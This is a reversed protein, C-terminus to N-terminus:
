ESEETKGFMKALIRCLTEAEERTITVSCAMKQPVSLARDRLALGEDTVSVELQREDSSDRRRVIFGKQELKKLVPTLTGSDLYLLRGIEKVSVSGQEWLVMMTIYQTYTLDIEDLVPKYRRLIERSAAYLPFCLQNCLRLPAYKDNEEM